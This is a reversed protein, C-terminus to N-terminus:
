VLWHSLETECSHGRDPKGFHLLLGLFWIWLLACKELTPRNLLLEPQGTASAFSLTRIIYFRDLV